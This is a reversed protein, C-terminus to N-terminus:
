LFCVAAAREYPHWPLPSFAPYFGVARRSVAPARCVGHPALGFLSAPGGTRDRACTRPGDRTDTAPTDRSAGGGPAIGTPSSHDDGRPRSCAARFLIRSIGVYFLPAAPFRLAGRKKEQPPCYSFEPAFCYIRRDFVAAVDPFADDCWNALLRLRQLRTGNGGRCM